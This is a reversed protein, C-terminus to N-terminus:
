NHGWSGDSNRRIFLQSWWYYRGDGTPATCNYKSRGVGLPRKAQVRISQGEQKAEIMGQGSAYCTFPPLYPIVPSTMRLVPRTSEIPLEPNRLNAGTETEIYVQLLSVPVSDAKLAFDEADGYTGGFPFRPILQLDVNSPVPGSQQGFAVYGRKALIEKLDQDYEGFPYAFVKTNVGLEKAIRQEAFDIEQERRLAFENFSEGKSRRILHGHSDTHNGIVAGYTVLVKLDAWSMFIPNKEDHPQSNIFVTFPWKRKKLRPFAEDFVSRYGDDFTIVVAHDPLPQKAKLMKVVTLLDLVQFQKAALYDMHQEFVAPTVSTSAPTKDSVHHYQLVVLASSSASFVLCFLALIFFKVNIKLCMISVEYFNILYLLM